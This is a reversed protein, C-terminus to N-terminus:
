ASTIRFGAQHLILPWQRVFVRNKEKEGEPLDDWDVLDPHTQESDSKPGPAYRWGQRQKENRWRAHERHALEEIELESFEYPPQCWDELLTLEYGQERLVKGIFDAQARNSNRISRSLKEWRVLAPDTEDWTSSQKRNELYAQHLARALQEQTGQDLFQRDCVREVLTFPRLRPQDSEASDLAEMLRHIGGSHSMHIAVSSSRETLHRKVSLATSLSQEDDPLDILTLDFAKNHIFEGQEFAASDIETPIPTLEASEPLAPYRAALLELNKVADPDVVVIGIKDSNGRAHFWKRAAQVVLHESLTGLGVILMNPPSADGELSSNAFDYEAMLFDAGRQYINFLELRLAEFKERVVEWRRLLNWM